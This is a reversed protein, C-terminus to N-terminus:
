KDANAIDRIRTTAASTLRAEGVIVHPFAKSPTVLSAFDEPFCISISKKTGVQVPQLVRPATVYGLVATTSKILLFKTGSCTFKCLSEVKGARCLTNQVGVM